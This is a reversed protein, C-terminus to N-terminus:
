RWPPACPSRTPGPGTASCPWPRPGLVVPRRARAAQRALRYAEEAGRGVGRGNLDVAVIAFPPDDKRDDYFARLSVIGEPAHAFLVRLCREIQERDPEFGAPPSM